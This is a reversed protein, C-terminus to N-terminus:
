GAKVLVWAWHSLRVGKTGFLEQEPDEDCVRRDPPNQHLAACYRGRAEPPNMTIRFWEGYDVNSAKYSASVSSGQQTQQDETAPFLVANEGGKVMTAWPFEEASITDVNIQETGRRSLENQHFPTFNAGSDQRHKRKSNRYGRQWVREGGRECLMARCDEEAIDRWTSIDVSLEKPNDK